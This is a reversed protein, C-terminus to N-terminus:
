STLETDDGLLRLAHHRRATPGTEPQRVEDDTRAVTHGVTANFHCDCPGAFDRREHDVTWAAHAFRVEEFPRAFPGTFDM